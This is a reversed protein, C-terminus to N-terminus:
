ALPLLSDAATGLSLSRRAPLPHFLELTAFFGWLLLLPMAPVPCCCGPGWVGELFGLEARGNIAVAGSGPLIPAPAPVSVFCILVVFFFQIHNYIMGLIPVSPSTGHEFPTVTGPHPKVMLVNYIGFALM